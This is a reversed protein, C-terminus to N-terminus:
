EIKWVFWVSHAVCCFGYLVATNSNCVALLVFWSVMNQKEGLIDEFLYGIICFPTIFLLGVLFMILLTLFCIDEGGGALYLSAAFLFYSGLMLWSAVVGATIGYESIKM